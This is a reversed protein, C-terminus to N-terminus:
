MTISISGWSATERTRRAHDRGQDALDNFIGIRGTELAVRLKDDSDRLAAQVNKRETVDRNVGIM